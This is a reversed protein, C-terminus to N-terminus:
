SSARSSAAPADALPAAVNTSAPGSGPRWVGGGRDEPSRRPVGAAASSRQAPKKEGNVTAAPTTRIASNTFTQHHLAASRCAGHRVWCRPAADAQGVYAGIDLVVKRGWALPYIIVTNYNCRHLRAADM